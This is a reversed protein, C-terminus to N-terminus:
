LLCVRERVGLTLPWRSPTLPNTLTLPDQGTRPPCLSAATLGGDRDSDRRSKEKHPDQGTRPPCLSAATLGGDRDSDRRSSLRCPSHPDSGRRLPPGARSSPSCPSNGHASPCLPGPTSLLSLAPVWPSLLLSLLSLALVVPVRCLCCARPDLRCSGRRAPVRVWSMAPVNQPCWHGARGTAPRTLPVHPPWTLAVRRTEPVRRARELSVRKRTRRPVLRPCKPSTRQRGEADSTTDPSWHHHQPPM